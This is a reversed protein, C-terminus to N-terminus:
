IIEEPELEEEEIVEFRIANNPCVDICLGCLNCRSMDIQVKGNVKVMAPCGFNDICHNCKQCSQFLNYREIEVQIDDDVIAKRLHLTPAPNTNLRELAMEGEYAYKYNELSKRVAVVAKKGSAIAGIVSMNNGSSIDGAVFVNEYGTFSNESKVRQNEDIQIQAFLSPDTTQGIATIIFDCKINQLFTKKEHSHLVVNLEGDKGVSCTEVFSDHIFEIDEESAHKVEEAFAPMTSETEICSVIIKNLVNLKKASRATDIASNGGGIVL